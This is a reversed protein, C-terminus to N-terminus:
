GAGPPSLAALVDAGRPHDGPQGSRHAFRIEEPSAIVFVGGNQWPDGAVGTQRMGKRSARWAALFTKPHLPALYSRRAGLCRFVEKAEDSYVPFDVGLEEVFGALYQPGGSGVVLIGAGRREIEHQQDRLQAVQERCFM